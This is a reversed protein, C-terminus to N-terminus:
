FWKEKWMEYMLIFWIANVHTVDGDFLGKKIKEVEKVNFIEEDLKTHTQLTDTPHTEWRVL